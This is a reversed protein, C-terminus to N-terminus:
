YAGDLPTSSDSLTRTYMHKEFHRTSVLSPLRQFVLQGYDAFYEPELNSPHDAHGNASGNGEKFGNANGNGEGVGNVSGNGESSKKAHNAIGETMAYTLEATM